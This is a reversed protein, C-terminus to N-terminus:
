ASGKVNSCFGLGGIASAAASPRWAACASAAADGPEPERRVTKPDIQVLGCARRQSLGREAM